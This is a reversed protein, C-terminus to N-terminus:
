AGGGCKEVIARWHPRYHDLQLAIEGQLPQPLVQYYHYYHLVRPCGWPQVGDFSDTSTSPPSARTLELVMVFFVLAILIGLLFATIIKLREFTM